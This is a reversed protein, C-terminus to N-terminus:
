FITVVDDCVFTWTEIVEKADEEVSLEGVEFDRPCAMIVNKISVIGGSEDLYNIVMDIHERSSRWAKIAALVIKDRMKFVMTFEQPSPQDTVRRTRDPRDVSVRESKLSSVSVPKMKLPGAFVDFKTSRADDQGAAM